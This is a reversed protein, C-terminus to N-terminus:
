KPVSSSVLTANESNTNRLYDKKFSEFGKKTTEHYRAGLGLDTPVIKPVYGTYGPM